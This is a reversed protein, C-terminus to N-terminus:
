VISYKGTHIIKCETHLYDLGLLMMEVMVKLIESPITNGEFRRKFIWLPERLPEFVLCIHNEYSGRLIFSDLLARIFHRGDHPARVQSILQMISRENEATQRQDSNLANIKITVYRESSWWRM